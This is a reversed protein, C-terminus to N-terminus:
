WNQNGNKRYANRVNQEHATSSIAGATATSKRATAAASPGTMMGPKMWSGGGAGANSEGSSSSSSIGSTKGQQSNGDNASSTSRTSSETTASLQLTSDGGSGSSEDDDSAVETESSGVESGGAETPAVEGLSLLEKLEPFDHGSKTAVVVLEIIREAHRTPIGLEALDDATADQLVHPEDYGEAKVCNATCLLLLGCM